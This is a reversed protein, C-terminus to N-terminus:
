AKSDNTSNEEGEEREGRYLQVGCVHMYARDSGPVEESYNAIPQQQHSSSM